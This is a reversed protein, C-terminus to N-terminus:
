TLENMKQLIQGMRQKALNVIDSSLDEITTYRVKDFSFMDRIFDLVVEQLLSFMFM